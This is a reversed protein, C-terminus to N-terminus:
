PLRVVKLAPEDRTNLNQWVTHCNPCDGVDPENKRWEIEWFSDDTSCIPCDVFSDPDATMARMMIVMETLYSRIDCLVFFCALLCLFIMALLIDTM